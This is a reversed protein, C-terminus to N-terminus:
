SGSDAARDSQGSVHPVVYRQGARHKHADWNALTCLTALGLDLGAAVSPSSGDPSFAVLAGARLRYLSAQVFLTAEQGGGWWVHAARLQAALSQQHAQLLPRADVREQSCRDCHRIGLKRLENRKHPVAQQIRARCRAPQTVEHWV